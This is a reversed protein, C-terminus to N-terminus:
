TRLHGYRLLCATWQKPLYHMRVARPVDPQLSLRREIQDRILDPVVISSKSSGCGTPTRSRPPPCSRREPCPQRRARSAAHVRIGPHFKSCAGPGAGTPRSYLPHRTPQAPTAVPRVGPVTLHPLTSPARLSLGGSSPLHPHGCVTTRSRGQARPRDSSAPRSPSVSKSGFFSVSGLSSVSVGAPQRAVGAREMVTRAARGDVGEPRANWM